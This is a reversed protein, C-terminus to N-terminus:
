LDFKAQLIFIRPDIIRFANPTGDPFAGVPQLRGSEQLNRVNLQFTAGVKRAWLRTRYGIFADAYLHASDWIPRNPDLATIEAPLKEVGYYGIGGRDEWRLAGGVNFNKLWAHQTVGELRFNTSFKAKYRRIQPNSKGQQQLLIQYPNNIFSAFNQQPSGTGGYRNLWWLRNPNAETPTLRPDVVTTWIPMRQAIWQAVSQSVNTTTSQTDTFSGSVTWYRAPNYNLEIETGKAVTDQTAALGPNPAILAEQVDLPIGIVRATENIIQTQTWTPNQLTIWARAQDELQHADASAIDMRLVRGAITGADGNRANVRRSEFYNVRAVLRGDLLNLWAGWDKGLGTPNPLPNRFIDQAPGNPVFSDSENYTLSLGTAIAAVGGAIGGGRAVRELGEHGRFPRAVFGGTRTRGQNFAYDGGAWHDISDYDFGLLDASLRPPASGRKDYTKDHRLGFTTVLRGDLWQSQMVAGTTKLYQKSNSGAGTSDTTAIQELRVPERFFTGANTPLGGTVAYNGWTFPYTGYAFDSPAYDVGHGNADGVYYRFYGRTAGPSIDPGNTVALQNVRTAGPPIWAHNSAIGDRYSYRRQIRYKFEDYGSFQHSGLWRWRSNERTLDLKYALQARWTDWRSPIWQTLPMDIGIYPRGFFPSPSGDLLRSNVDVLLQATQGTGGNGTYLNRQYRQADERTFGLQASLTHRPTAVILQDIQVSGTLTRDMLRNMSALNVSTWDYLSKDSVTPTTSFLPQNTFRGQAAGAALSAALYRIGQNGASPSTISTTTGTTWHEIGGRDVYIQARANGAFTRNFYDPLNADATIAAGTVGNVTIRQTVPDWAPRGSALWYSIGDRPPLANPRNGNMRFYFYSASIATGKFPSYKVMGNYRVNDTGSPRRVYGEHQFAGSVRIALRNKLLVRNADLEFRNGGYSDFRAGAQTRDRSLNASAPIMNLTGGPSGLGFVNANPGRSVEVSEINLPDVPTLGTMETNGFSINASGIGRIRNAGRPNGQVNDAVTGNRDVALDTYDHTGETGATYAFVDNIDLMAFDSMQEKTVVTLSSALDELKTNLRTGSMTNASYYGKTDAVVEFPNLTVPEDKAPAPTTSVVAATVAPKATASAPPEPVPSVAQAILHATSASALAVSVVFRLSTKM